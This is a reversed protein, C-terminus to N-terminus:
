VAAMVAVEKAAATDGKDVPPAIIIDEILAILSAEVSSFLLINLFRKKSETPLTNSFTSNAKMPKNERPPM